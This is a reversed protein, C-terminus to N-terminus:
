LTTSTPLAHRVMNSLISNQLSVPVINQHEEVGTNASVWFGDVLLLMYIVPRTPETQEWKWM